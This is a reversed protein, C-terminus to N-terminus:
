TDPQAHRLLRDRVAELADPTVRAKVLRMIEFSEDDGPMQRLFGLADLQQIASDLAKVDKVQNNTEKLFGGVLGHLESRSRILRSSEGAKTDYRAFEERLCVLLLTANYGLSRRRVLRPIRDDGDIEIQRLFAFGEAEDLVLEQGVQWFYRRIDDRNRRLIDWLDQEESYLAGQLLRVKVFSTEHFASDQTSM